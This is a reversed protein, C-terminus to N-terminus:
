VLRRSFKDIQSRERDRFHSDVILQVCSLRIVLIGSILVATSYIIIFHKLNPNQM